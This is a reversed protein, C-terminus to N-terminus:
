FDVLSRMETPSEGLEPEDWGVDETDDIVDQGLIANIWKDIEVWGPFEIYQRNEPLSNIWDQTRERLAYLDNLEADQDVTRM